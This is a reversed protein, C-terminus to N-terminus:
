EFRERYAAEYVGLPVRNAILDILFHVEDAPPNAFLEVLGFMPMALLSLHSQGDDTVQTRTFCHGMNPGTHAGIM